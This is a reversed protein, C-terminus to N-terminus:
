IFSGHSEFSIREFNGDEMWEEMWEEMGDEMM